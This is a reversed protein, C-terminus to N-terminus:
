QFLAELKLVEKQNNGEEISKIKERKSLDKM